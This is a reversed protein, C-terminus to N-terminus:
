RIAEGLRYTTHLTNAAYGGMVPRLADRLARAATDVEEGYAGGHALDDLPASGVRELDAAFRPRPTRARSHRFQEIEALVRLIRGAPSAPDTVAGRAHILRADELHAWLHLLRAREAHQHRFSRHVAARTSSLAKLTHAARYGHRTQEVKPMVVDEVTGIGDAVYDLVRGWHRAIEARNPNVLAHPFM